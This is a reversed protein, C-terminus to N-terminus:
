DIHGRKRDQFKGHLVTIGRLIKAAMMELKRSISVLLEEAGASLLAELVLPVLEENWAYLQDM